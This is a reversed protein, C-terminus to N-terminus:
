EFFQDRLLTFTERKRLQKFFLPMIIKPATKKYGKKSAPAEHDDSLLEGSRKAGLSDDIKSLSKLNTETQEDLGLMSGQPIGCMLDCLNLSVGDIFTQQKQDSFYSQFWKFSLKESIITHDM